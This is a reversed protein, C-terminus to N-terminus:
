KIRRYITRGILDFRDSINLLNESHGIILWGDPKLMEAYRDFLRRQTDQDFYIVVNRCFIVDFPGSMPWPGLLNLHGFSILERVEDKMVAQNGRLTVFRKRFTEPIGEAREFDYVGQSAHALVNTDLDTALIKVDWGSLLQECSLLTMAISHPEEGTSCGASWIRLRRRHGAVIAPLITRALYEFHHSERFFSTHNTTVANIFNHLEDDGADTELLKCYQSFSNMGLARLRRGLRGHIFARKRESLVIGATDMVLKSLKHFERDQLAFEEHM